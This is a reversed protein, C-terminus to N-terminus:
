IEDKGSDNSGWVAFPSAFDRLDELPAGSPVPRNIFASRIEGILPKM